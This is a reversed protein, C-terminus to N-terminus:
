QNFNRRNKKRYILKDSYIFLSNDLRKLELNGNLEAIGDDKFYIMEDATIIENDTLIRVNNKAIIKKDKDLFEIIKAEFNIEESFAYQIFILSQILIIFTKYFNSKM